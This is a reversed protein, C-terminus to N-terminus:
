PPTNRLDYEFDADQFIVIPATAQSIGTRLAASENLKEGYRVADRCDDSEDTMTIMSADGTMSDLGLTIARGFRHPAPNQVCHLIKHRTVHSTHRSDEPVSPSHKPTETPRHAPSTNNLHKAEEQLIQWTHDTSGDDVVIIKHPLGRLELELHLHEVTSAICREEDRAPIIVSLLKLPPNGNM